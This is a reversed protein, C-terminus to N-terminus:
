QNTILGNLPEIRIRRRRATRRRASAGAHLEDRESVVPADADEVAVLDDDEVDRRHALEELPAARVLGALADRECLRSSRAGITGFFNKWM